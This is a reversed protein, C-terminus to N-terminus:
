NSIKLTKMNSGYRRKSQPPVSNQGEPCVNDLLFVAKCGVNVTRNSQITWYFTKTEGPCACYTYNFNGLPFDITLNSQTYVKVATCATWFSQIRCALEINEGPKAPGMPVVNVDLLKQIDVAEGTTLLQLYLGLFMAVISSCLAQLCSM